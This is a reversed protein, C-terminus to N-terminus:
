CLDFVPEIAQSPDILHTQHFERWQGSGLGGFLDLAQETL